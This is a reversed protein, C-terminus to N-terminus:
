GREEYMTERSIAEDSLLPTTHSHSAAWARYAKAREQPTKESHTNNFTPLPFSSQSVRIEVEDGPKLGLQIAEEPLELTRATQVRATYYTMTM